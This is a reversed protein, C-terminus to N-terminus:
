VKKPFVIEVITGKGKESECRIEGNLLYKVTNWVIHLGLGNHGSGRWTTFFPEFVHPLDSENIGSGNDKFTLIMLSDKESYAKLSVFLIIERNAEKSVEVVNCILQDVIKCFADSSSFVTCEDPLELKVVINGAKLIRENTEIAQHLIHCLNFKHNSHDSETVAIEKFTKVLNSIRNLSKSVIESADSVEKLYDELGAKTIKNESFDKQRRGTKEAIYSSSTVGIGLPTNIEHAMGRVLSSLSTLKEHENYTRTQEEIAMKVIKELRYERDLITALHNQISTYLMSDGGSIELLAIGYWSDKVTLPLCVLPTTGVNDLWEVPALEWSDYSTVGEIVGDIQPECAVLMFKEPPEAIIAEQMLKIKVSEYSGDATLCVGVSFTKIGFLPLWHHLISKLEKVSDILATAHIFSNFLELLNLIGWNKQHLGAVASRVYDMDTKNMADSRFITELKDSDSDLGPLPESTNDHKNACGCSRRYVPTSPLVTESSPCGNTTEEILKRLAVVATDGIPQHVTTLPCQLYLGHAINDFGIVAIDEPVRYGDKMLHEIIHIAMNDNCAVVAQPMGGALSKLDRYVDPSKRSNFHGQVLLDLSEDLGANEIEEKWVKFRLDAEINNKPGRICAIRRYGHDNILHRVVERLGSENDVSVTSLGPVAFSTVVGPMNALEKGIRSFNHKGIHNLVTGCLIYGDFVPRRALKFLAAQVEDDSKGTGILQGVFIILAVGAARAEKITNKWIAELYNEGYDLMELMLCFRKYKGNGM